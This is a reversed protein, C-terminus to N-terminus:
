ERIAALKTQPFGGAPAVTAFVADDAVIPVGVNQDSFVQWLRSGDGVDVAALGDGNVYLAQDTVSVGTSMGDVSRSWVADKESVSIAHCLWGLPTRPPRRCAPARTPTPWGSGVQQSGRLAGPHGVILAYDAPTTAAKPRQVLTPVTTPLCNSQIM